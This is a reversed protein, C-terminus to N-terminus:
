DEPAGFALRPFYTRLAEMVGLVAANSGSERQGDLFGYSDGQAIKFNIQYCFDESARADCTFWVKEIGTTQFEFNEEPDRRDEWGLTDGRLVLRGERDKKLFGWFGTKMLILDDFVLRSPVTTPAAPSEAHTAMLAAITSEQADNQKLYLLDNVSLNYAQSSQKVQEVIISESIGSEILRVFGVLRADDPQLPVSAPAPVHAWIATIVSEPVGASRLTLLDGASMAIANEPSNIMTILSDASAGSRQAALVFDVTLEEAEAAPAALALLTVGVSFLGVVKRTM